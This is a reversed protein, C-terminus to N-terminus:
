FEFDFFPLSSNKISEYFQNSIKSKSVLFIVDKKILNPLIKKFASLSFHYDNIDGYYTSRLWYKKGLVLNIYDGRPVCAIYPKDPLQLGFEQIKKIKKIREKDVYIFGSTRPIQIKETQKWISQQHIPNTSAAFFCLYPCCVLVLSVISPMIFKNRKILLHLTLFWFIACGVAPIIFGGNSFFSFLFPSSLLLLFIYLFEREQFLKNKRIKLNILILLVCPFVFLVLMWRKWEIINTLVGTSLLFLGLFSCFIIRSVLFTIPVSKNKIFLFLGLLIFLSSLSISGRNSFSTHSQLQLIYNDVRFNKIQIVAYIFFLGGIIFVPLLFFTKAFRGVCKKPVIFASFIGILSLLIFLQPKSVISLLLSVGYFIICSKSKKNQFKLVALLFCFIAALSFINYNPFLTWNRCFFFLLYGSGAFVSPVLKLYHKKELEELILFFLVHLCAFSVLRTWFISGGCFYFILGSLVYDNILSLSNDPFQIAALIAASEDVESFGRVAFYSFLILNFLSILVAWKTM